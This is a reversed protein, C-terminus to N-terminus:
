YKRKRILRRKLREPSLRTDWIDAVKIADDAYDVFYIVNVHTAIRIARHLPMLGEALPEPHGVEPFRTLYRMKAEFSDTLNNAAQLGFHSAYYSTYKVLQSSAVDSIRVEM